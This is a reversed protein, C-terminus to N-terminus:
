PMKIKLSASARLCLSEGQSPPSASPNGLTILYDLTAIFWAPLSVPFPDLCPLTRWEPTPPPKVSIVTNCTEDPCHNVSIQASLASIQGRREEKELRSEEDEKAEERKRRAGRCTEGGGTEGERERM